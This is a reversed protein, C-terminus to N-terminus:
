QVAREFLPKGATDRVDYTDLSVIALQSALSLESNAQPLLTTVYRPHIWRRPLDISITQWRTNWVFLRGFASYAYVLSKDPRLEPDGELIMGLVSAHVEPDCFQLLGNHSM